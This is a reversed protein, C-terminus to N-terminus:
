RAEGFLHQLAALAAQAIAMDDSYHGEGSIGIAGALQGDIMLPFGGGIPVQGSPPGAGDGSPRPQPAQPDFLSDSPCANQAATRAKGLALEVSFRPAGDMSLVAKPSGTHDVIAVTSALGQLASRDLAEDLLRQAITDTLLLDARNQAQM